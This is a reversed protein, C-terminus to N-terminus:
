PTPAATDSSVPPRRPTRGMFTYDVAGDEAEFLLRHVERQDDYWIHRGPRPYGARVSLLYRMRRPKFIGRQPNVFPIRRGQYQFGATLHEVTLADHREQLARVNRRSAAFRM